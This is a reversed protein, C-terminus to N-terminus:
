AHDTKKIRKRKRSSCLYCKLVEFFKGDDEVIVTNGGSVNKKCFACFNNHSWEKIKIERM